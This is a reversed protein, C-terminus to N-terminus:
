SSFNLLCGFALPTYILDLRGFSPFSSPRVGFYHKFETTRFAGCEAFGILFSIDTVDPQSFFRRVHGIIFFYSVQQFDHFTGLLLDKPALEKRGMTGKAPSLRAFPPLPCAFLSLAARLFDQFDQSVVYATCLLHQLITSMHAKLPGPSARAPWTCLKHLKDFLMIHKYGLWISACETQLTIIIFRPPNYCTRILQCSVEIRVFEGIWRIKFMRVQCTRFRRLRSEIGIFHCM